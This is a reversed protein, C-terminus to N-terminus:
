AHGSSIGRGPELVGAWRRAESAGATGGGGGWWWCAQMPLAMDQVLEALQRDTLDAFPTHVHIGPMGHSSSRLAVLRGVLLASDTIEAIRDLDLGEGVGASAPWFVRRCGLRTALFAAELLDMAECAAAGAEARNPRDLPTLPEALRLGFLEAQRHLAEACAGDALPGFPLLVPPDGADPSIGRSSLEERVFACALLCM